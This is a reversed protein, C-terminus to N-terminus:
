RRRKLPLYGNSSENSSSELTSRKLDNDQLVRIEQRLTKNEEELQLLRSDFSTTQALNKQENKADTIITKYYLGSIAFCFSGITILEKGTFTLNNWDIRPM